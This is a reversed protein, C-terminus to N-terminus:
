ATVSSDALVAPMLAKTSFGRVFFSIAFVTLFTSSPALAVTGKSRHDISGPSYTQVRAADPLASERSLRLTEHFPCVTGHALCRDRMSSLGGGKALISFPNAFGLEERGAKRNSSIGGPGVGRCEAQM